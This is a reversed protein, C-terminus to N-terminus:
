VEKKIRDLEEPTLRNIFHQNARYNKRWGWILYALAGSGPIATGLIKTLAGLGVDEMVVSDTQPVVVNEAGPDRQFALCGSGLVLALIGGIIIKRM